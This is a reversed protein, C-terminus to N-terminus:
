DRHYLVEAENQRAAAEFLYRGHSKGTKKGGRVVVVRQVAHRASPQDLQKRLNGRDLLVVNPSLKQVVTVSTAELVATVLQQFPASSPGQKQLHECLKRPRGETAILNLAARWMADPADDQLKSDNAGVVQVVHRIAGASQIAQALGEHLRTAEGRSWPYNINDFFPHSM